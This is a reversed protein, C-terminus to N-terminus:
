WTKHKKKCGKAVCVRPAGRKELPQGDKGPVPGGCWAHILRNCHLCRHANASPVAHGCGGACLTGTTESPPAVASVTDDVPEACAASWCAIIDIGLVAVECSWNQMCRRDFTRYSRRGLMLTSRCMLLRFLMSTGFCRVYKGTCVHKRGHDTSADRAEWEAADSLACTALAAAARRPRCVAISSDAAVEPPDAGAAAAAAAASAASSGAHKKRQPQKALPADQERQRKTTGPHQRSGSNPGKRGTPVALNSVFLM